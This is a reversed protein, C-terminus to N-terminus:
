NWIVMLDVFEQVPTSELKKPANCLAFIAQSQKNSFRRALNTKFKSELLPIGDKRRNRHGIPYEVVVKETQTGDKFFIQIANAISRKKPNLYDVSWPKHEVCQM